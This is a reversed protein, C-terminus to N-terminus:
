TKKKVTWTGTAVESGSAKDRASWTGSAASGDFTAAIVVETSQDPPYDYKASMKKGDFELSKLAVTYNPEGSVALKGTIAGSQDKELTLEIGGSGSGEFTGTWTGVHEEGAASGQGSPPAGALAAGAIVVWSLL